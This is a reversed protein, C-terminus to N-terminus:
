GPGRSAAGSTPKSAKPTSPLTKIIRPEDTGDNDESDSHRKAQSKTPTTKKM